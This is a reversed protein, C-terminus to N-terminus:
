FRGKSLFFGAHANFPNEEGRFANYFFTNPWEQLTYHLPTEGDDNVVRVLSAADKGRDQAADFLFEAIEINQPGQDGQGRVLWHIPTNGVPDRAAPGAGREVLYRALPGEKQQCAKILPSVADADAAVPDFSDLSAEGISAAEDVPLGPYGRLIRIANRIRPPLDLEERPLHARCLTHLLLSIEAGRAADIHHATTAKPRAVHVTLHAATPSFPLVHLPALQGAPPHRHTNLDLWLKYPPEPTAAYHHSPHGHRPPNKSAQEKGKWARNAQLQSRQLRISVQGSPDPLLADRLSRATFFEHLTVPTVPRRGSNARRTTQHAAAPPLGYQWM